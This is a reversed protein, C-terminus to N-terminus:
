NLKDWITLMLIAGAMIWGWLDKMGRSGGQQTSIYSILPAITIGIKEVAATLDAKTSYMGRESNIQERLQNAKEDKYNQIERALSIADREAQEKVWQMKEETMRVEAYRRDREQLFKEEAARVAENHIAYTEITWTNRENPM